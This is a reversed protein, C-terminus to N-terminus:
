KFIILNGPLSKQSSCLNFLNERIYRILQNANRIRISPRRQHTRHENFRNTIRRTSSRRNQDSTAHVSYM